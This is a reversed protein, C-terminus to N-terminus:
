IVLAYFVSELYVVDFLLSMLIFTSTVQDICAPFL